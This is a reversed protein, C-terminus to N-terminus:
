LMTAKKFMELRLAALHMGMHVSIRKRHTKDQQMGHRNRLTCARKGWFVWCFRDKSM